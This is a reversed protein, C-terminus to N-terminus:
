PLPDPSFIPPLGESPLAARQAPPLLAALRRTLALCAAEDRCCVPSPSATPLGWAHMLGRPQLMAGDPVPQSCAAVASLAAKSPSMFLRRMIPVIFRLTRAKFAANELSFLNTASVGPHALLVRAGGEGALASRSLCAMAMSLQRKGRAYVETQNRVRLSQPDDLDLPAYFAALSTMTVVRGGARAVAPLLRLTLYVPALCNTQFSQELGDRTTRRPQRYVGANNVLLDIREGDLRECLADVTAFRSLDLPLWEIAAAPYDARLAALLARAKDPNRAALLADAGMALLARAVAEGLSGTAGTILARKGRLDAPHARLWREASHDAM